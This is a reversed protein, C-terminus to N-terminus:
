TEPYVGLAALRPKLHEDFYELMADLARISEARTVDKPITKELMLLKEKSLKQELRRYGVRERNDLIHEFSILLGRYYEM